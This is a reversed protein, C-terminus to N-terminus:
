VVARERYYPNNALGEDVLKQFEKEGWSQITAIDAMVVYWHPDQASVEKSNSLIERSSAIKEHFPKWAEPKVTNAYGGGIIKWAENKLNYKKCYLPHTINSFIGDM